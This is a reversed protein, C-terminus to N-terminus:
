KFIPQGFVNLPGDPRGEYIAEPRFSGVQVIFPDGQWLGKSKSYAMPRVISGREATARVIMPPPAAKNAVTGLVKGSKAEKLWVYDFDGANGADIIVLANKVGTPGSIPRMEVVQSFDAETRTTASKDLSAVEAVINFALAPGPTAAVAAVATGASIVNRRSVNPPTSLAAALLPLSCLLSRMPYIVELPARPPRARARTPGTHAQHDSAEAFCTSCACLAHGVCWALRDEHGDAHVEVWRSREAANCCQLFTTAGLM